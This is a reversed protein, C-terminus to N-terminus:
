RKKVSIADGVTNFLAALTSGYVEWIEMLPDRGRPQEISASLGALGKRLDLHRLVGVLQRNRNVVAVCENNHWLEHSAVSSLSARGSMADPATQMVNSLANKAPAKLLEIVDVKGQLYRERDVVYVTDINAVDGASALRARAEGVNCDTPLSIYSTSMWAGVATDAYNLLLNCTLKTKEPLQDLISQARENESHRMIAAIHSVDMESLFGACVVPEFYCCLRATYQPLMMALVSASQKFSVSLLFEAVREIPQEELVAAASSPQSQLYAVALDIRKDIM